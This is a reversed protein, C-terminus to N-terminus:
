GETGRCTQRQELCSRGLGVGLFFSKTVNLDNVFNKFRASPFRIRTPEKLGKNKYCLQKKTLYDKVKESFQNRGSRAKALAWGMNAEPVSKESHACTSDTQCHQTQRDETQVTAFMAVWDRKLKDYIKHENQVVYEGVDLHLEFDSFRAFTKTCGPEPCVFVTASEPKTKTEPSTLFFSGAVLAMVDGSVFAKVRSLSTTFNALAKQNKLRLTRTQNM